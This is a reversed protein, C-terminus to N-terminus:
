ILRELQKLVEIYPLALEDEAFRQAQDGTFVVRKKYKTNAPLIEGLSRLGKFDKAKVNAGSKIEIGITADATEVVLDVEAGAMSRYSSLKWRKNLLEKLYFVQLIFWHEFLHGRQNQPTRIHAKGLLANRIGVDFLFIKDRQHLRRNIKAKPRWAPLRYVVLTDELVQVYRRITEKPIETDSAIKSYNLWQGSIAAVTDLCRAYQGIDKVLAEAQIEERLYVDVYSELLDAGSSKNLYIGPLMGVQLARDLKFIEELELCSFPTLHEVVLRGPLLNARGRKFKRASSGTLIFRRRNDPSDLITQLSNLSSPLRQVEDVIVLGKNQGAELERYFQHPDKSLSRFLREDMLSIMVTPKLSRCLTSKGVQRPGLLLVSQESERIRRDNLRDQMRTM